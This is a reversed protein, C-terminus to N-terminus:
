RHRLTSWSGYGKNGGHGVTWVSGGRSSGSRRSHFGGTGSSPQSGGAIANLLALLAILTVAELIDWM